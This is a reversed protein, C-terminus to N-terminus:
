CLSCVRCYVHVGHMHTALCPYRALRILGVWCCVVYGFLRREFCEDITVKTTGFVVGHHCGPRLGSFGDDKNGMSRPPSQRAAPEVRPAARVSAAPRSLAQAATPQQHRPHSPNGGGSGGGSGGSGGAAGMSSGGGGGSAGGGQMDKERQAQQAQAQQAQAQAEAQAQAKAGSKWKRCYPDITKITVKPAGIALDIIIERLTEADLPLLLKNM